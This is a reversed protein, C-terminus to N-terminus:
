WILLLSGAAHEPRSVPWGRSARLLVLYEGWSYRAPRHHLLGHDVRRPRSRQREAPAMIQFDAASWSRGIWNAPMTRMGGLWGDLPDLDDPPSRGRSDTIRLFMACAATEGGPAGSVGLAGESDVSENAVGDSRDIRRQGTPEKPPLGPRRTFSFSCGSTWRLIRRAPPWGGDWRDLVSASCAPGWRSINATTWDGSDIGEM